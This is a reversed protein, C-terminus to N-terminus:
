TASSASRRCIAIESCGSFTKGTLGGRTSIPPALELLEIVARILPADATSRDDTPTLLVFSINKRLSDTWKQM